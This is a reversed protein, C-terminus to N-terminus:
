NPFPTGTDWFGLDRMEAHIENTRGETIRKEEVARILLKRIREYAYTQDDHLGDLVKFADDDDTAIAWTREYSVAVCAAEGSGLPARLGYEAVADRSQLRAAVLAEADTMEVVTLRSQDFLEDVYRVRDVVEASSGATRAAVEYHRVAQRMESLLDSRRFTENPLSRDGPDYVSVPVSLPDGVLELLLEGEGVLLFYLLVVTDVICEEDSSV